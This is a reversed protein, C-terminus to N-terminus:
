ETLGEIELYCNYDHFFGDFFDEQEYEGWPYTEFKGDDDPETSWTVPAGDMTTFTLREIEGTTVRGHRPYKVEPVRTVHLIIDQWDTWELPGNEDARAWRGRVVQGEKLDAVNM